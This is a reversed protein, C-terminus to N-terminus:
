KEGKALARMEDRYRRRLILDPVPSDVESLYNTVAKRLREVEDCLEAITKRSYGDMTPMSLTARIGALKM